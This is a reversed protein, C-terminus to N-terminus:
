ESPRPRISALLRATSLGHEIGIPSNNPRSAVHELQKVFSREPTYSCGNVTVRKLGPKTIVDQFVVGEFGTDTVLNVHFAYEDVWGAGAKVEGHGANRAIHQWLNLGHSHEWAPGGGREWSGLYTDNESKLWPHAALVYSWNERWQVSLTDVTDPFEYLCHLYGVYTPQRGLLKEADKVQHPACLPKEILLPVDEKLALEIHSEPPTAIITLAYGGRGAYMCDQIAEDWEGYRSAYIEPLRRLAAEDNDVIDVEWGLQRAAHAHHMGASGAGIIKVRM